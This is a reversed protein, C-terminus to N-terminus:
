GRRLCLHRRGARGPAGGPAAAAAPAGPCARPRAAPALPACAPTLPACAPALPACAPAPPHLRAQALVLGLLADPLESLDAPMPAAGAHSQAPKPGLLGHLLYRHLLRTSAHTFGSWVLKDHHLLLCHRVSPYTCEVLNVVYQARLYLRQDVPLFRIGDMADLVDSAHFVDEAGAAMLELQRTMFASLQARFAAPGQRALLPLLPGCFMRLMGYMRGLVAKLHPDQLLEEESGSQAESAAVLQQPEPNRAVLVFWIDPEVQLFVYRRNQTHLSDCDSGDALNTAFSSLAESLGVCRVQEGLPTDVPHFYLIKNEADAEGGLLPNYVCFHELM